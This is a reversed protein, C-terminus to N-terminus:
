CGNGPYSMGFYALHTLIFIFIERRTYKKNSACQTVFVDVEIESESFFM